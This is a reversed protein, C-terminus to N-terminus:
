CESRSEERRRAQHDAAGSEVGSGRRDRLRSSLRQPRPAALSPPRRRKLHTAALSPPRRTLHIAAALPGAAAYPPHSAALPGAAYHPPHRALSATRSPTSRRPPHRPVSSFPSRRALSSAFWSAGCSSSREITKLNIFSCTLMSYASFYKNHCDTPLSFFGITIKIPPAVPTPLDVIAVIRALLSFM